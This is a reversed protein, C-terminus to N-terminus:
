HKLRVTCDSLCCAILHVEHEHSDRAVLEYRTSHKGCDTLFSSEDVIRVDTYGLEVATRVADHKDASCLSLAFALGLAAIVYVITPPEGQARTM